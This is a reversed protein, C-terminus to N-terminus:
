WPSFPMLSAQLEARSTLTSPMAYLLPSSVYHRLFAQRSPANNDNSAAKEIRRIIM